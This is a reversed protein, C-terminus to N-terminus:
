PARDAGNQHTSGGEAQDDDRIADFVADVLAIHVLLASRLREVHPTIQPATRSAKHLSELSALLAARQRGIRLLVEPSVTRLRDFLLQPQKMPDLTM